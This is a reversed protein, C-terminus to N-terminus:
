FKVSHSVDLLQCLLVKITLKGEELNSVNCANDPRNRRNGIWSKLFYFLVLGLLLGIALSSLIWWIIHLNKPLDVPTESSTPVSPKCSRDARPSCYQNLAKLGKNICQPQEEDKGDSCCYSCRKCVQQPKSFFYDSNCTKNCKTDSSLTCKKTVVEHEACSHCVKCGSTDYTDSFTKGSECKKCEHTKVPYKVIDGCKDPYLGRGPQCEACHLCQKFTGNPWQVTIQGSGCKLIFSAAM